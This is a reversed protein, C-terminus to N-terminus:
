VGCDGSHGGQKYSPRPRGVRGRTLRGIKPARRCCFFGFRGLERVETPSNDTQRILNSFSVIIGGEWLFPASNPKSVALRKIARGAPATATQSSMFIRV